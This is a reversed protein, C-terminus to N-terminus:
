MSYAQIHVVSSIAFTSLAYFDALILAISDSYTMYLINERQMLPVLRLRHGKQATTKGLRKKCM